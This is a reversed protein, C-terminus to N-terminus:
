AARSAARPTHGEAGPVHHAVSGAISQPKRLLNLIPCSREVRDELAAIEERSVPSTIHVVYSIEHPHVPVDPHDAHAGRADIQGSVEVEIAEIPVHLLAAQILFSHTLCSGLIGLQLEPSSPGLDYGAFDPPSDTIVQFDRVRIRRVGSRGEVRVTAALPVTALTGDAIRTAREGLAARKQVLYANLDSADSM